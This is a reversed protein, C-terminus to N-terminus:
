SLLAALIAAVAVVVALEIAAPVLDLGPPNRLEAKAADINM